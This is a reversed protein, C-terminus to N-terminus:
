SSAIEPRRATFNTGAEPAALRMNLVAMCHSLAPCGTERAAKRAKLLANEVFTLGIEDADAVGLEGQTVLEIGSDGLLERIEALKGRNSSAIVWRERTSM